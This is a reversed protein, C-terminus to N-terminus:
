KKLEAAKEKVASKVNETKEKVTSGLDKTKEKIKSGLGKTKDEVVSKVVDVKDNVTDRIKQTRAIEAEKKAKEEESENFFVTERGAEARWKQYADVDGIVYKWSLYIVAIDDLLGLVPISDKIIDKPSILYLLSAIMAVITSVPCERYEGKVYSKIMSIMVPVMSLQEGVVPVDDLKQELRQLFLEMKDPDNVIREAEVKGSEYADEIEKSIKIESM